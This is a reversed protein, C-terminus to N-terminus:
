EYGGIKLSPDGLLIIEEITLCDKWDHTDLYETQAYTMMEGVTSRDTYAKFFNKNINPIGASGYPNFYGEWAERTSGISIISGGNPKKLLSWALCPLQIGNINFDLKATLCADLFVIPLKEKNRMMLMHFTYYTITDSSNPRSTAFGYPFGHGSYSIFGAGKTWEKNIKVPLFNNESAWLRTSTFDKMITEIAELVVEGEIEKTEPFDPWQSYPFSDGGLLIIRNFWTEDKTNSSEYEIIKKIVTQLEKENACPIRGISIDPYLDVNDIQEIKEDKMKWYYEGFVDDNNSDWSCFSGNATYIDAYYLDTLVDDVFVDPGYLWNVETKRIPLQTIDGILLVYRIQYTDYAEKIAYKIKEPEDRGPYESYIEEITRVFTRMEYTNKHQLLPQITNNYIEPTLIMMDYDDNFLTQIQSPSRISLAESGLGSLICLGTLTIALIKKMM